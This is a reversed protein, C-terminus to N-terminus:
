PGEYLEDLLEDFTQRGIRRIEPLMSRVVDRDSIQETDSASLREVEAIKPLRGAWECTAALEYIAEILTDDLTYRSAGRFNFGEAEFIVEREQVFRTIFQISSNLFASRLDSSEVAGYRQASTMGPWKVRIIGRHGFVGSTNLYAETRNNECRLILSRPGQASSDHARVHIFHSPYHPNAINEETYFMGNPTTVRDQISAYAQSPHMALLLFMGGSLFKWM